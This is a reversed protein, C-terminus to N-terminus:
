GGRGGAARPDIGRHRRDRASGVVIAPTERASYYAACRGAQAAAAMPARTVSLGTVNLRLTGYRDAVNGTCGSPICALMLLPPIAAGFWNWGRRTRLWHWGPSRGLPGGPRSQWLLAAFVLSLFTFLIGTLSAM